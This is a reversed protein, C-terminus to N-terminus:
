WCELSSFSEAPHSYQYIITRQLFFRSVVLRTASREMRIRETTETSVCDSYRRFYGSAHLQITYM